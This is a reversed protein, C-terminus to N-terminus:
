LPPAFNYDCCSSVMSHFAEPHVGLPSGPVGLSHHNQNREGMVNPAFRSINVMSGLASDRSALSLAQMDLAHRRLISDDAFQSGGAGAGSATAFPIGSTGGQLALHELQAQMLRGLNDGRQVDTVAANGQRFQDFEINGVLPPALAAGPHNGFRQQLQAHNGTANSTLQAITNRAIALENELARVKASLSENALQYQQNSKSIETVQIELTQILVKKRKRRNRASERNMALRKERRILALKDMNANGSSGETPGEGGASVSDDDSDEGAYEDARREGMAEKPRPIQDTHM